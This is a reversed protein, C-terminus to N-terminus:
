VLLNQGTASFGSIEWEVIPPSFLRASYSSNTLGVFFNEFQSRSMDNLCWNKGMPNLKPALTFRQNPGGNENAQYFAWQNGSGVFVCEHGLVVKGAALLYGFQLNGNGTFKALLGKATEGNLPKRRALSQADVYLSKSGTLYSIVFDAAGSCYDLANRDTENPAKVESIVLPCVKLYEAILQEAKGVTQLLTNLSNINKM